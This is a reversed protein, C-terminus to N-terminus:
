LLQRKWLVVSLIDGVAAHTFIDISIRSFPISAAPVDSAGADRQEAPCSRRGHPVAGSLDFTGFLVAADM